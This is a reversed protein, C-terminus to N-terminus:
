KKYMGRSMQRSLSVTRESAWRVWRDSAEDYKSYEGDPSLVVPVPGAVRLDGPPDSVVTLEKSDPRWLFLTTEYRGTDERWVQILLIARQEDAYRIVGPLEAESGDRDEFLTFPQGDRYFTRYVGGATPIVPHERLHHEVLPSLSWGEHHAVPRGEDDLLHLDVPYPGSETVGDYTGTLVNWQKAWPDYAFSLIHRGTGATTFLTSRSGTEISHVYLSLSDAYAVRDNGAWQVPAGQHLAVIYQYPEITVAPEGKRELVLRYYDGIVDGEPWGVVVSGVYAEGDPSFVITEYFPDNESWGVRAGSELDLWDSPKVQVVAYQNRDRAVYNGSASRFGDLTGGLSVREHRSSELGPLRLRYRHEDIWEGAPLDPNPSRDMAESFRLVLNPHRAPVVAVPQAGERETPRVFLGPTSTQPNEYELTVGLPEKKVISIPPLDGLTVTVVPELGTMRLVPRDPFKDLNTFAHDAAGEVRIQELLRGVQEPDADLLMGISFEGDLHRVITYPERPLDEETLTLFLYSIMDDSQGFDLEKLAQRFSLGSEGSVPRVEDAAETRGDDAAVTGTSADAMPLEEAEPKVSWVDPRVAAVLLLLVFMAAIMNALLWRM